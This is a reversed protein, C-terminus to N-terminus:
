EMAINAFVRKALPTLTFSQWLVGAIICKGYYILIENKYKLYFLLLLTEIFFLISIVCFSYRRLKLIEDENEIPKAKTDVPVFKYIAYYSYFFGLIFISIFALNFDININKIILAFGVFIIAGLFACKNPTNAHIGGSYKRYTAATLAIIVSEVLVNCVTGLIIVCSLAWIVQLVSFAGYVIIEETDKDLELNNAIKNGIRNSLREILFM